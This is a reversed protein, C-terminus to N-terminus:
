STGQELDDLASDIVQRLGDRPAEYGWGKPEGNIFLARATQYQELVDRDGCNYENLVLKDGYEACVERVRMIEVLSTQCIPNWFADVVVKGPVLNPQYNLQHM